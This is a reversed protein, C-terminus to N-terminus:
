CMSENPDNFVSKTHKQLSRNLHNMERRKKKKAKLKRQKKLKKPNSQSFWNDHFIFSDFRFCLVFYESFQIRILHIWFQFTWVFINSQILIWVHHMLENAAEFPLHLTSGWPKVRTDELNIPGNSVCGLMRRLRATNTSSRPHIQLGIPIRPKWWCVSGIGWLLRTRPTPGSIVPVRRPMQSHQWAAFPVQNQSLVITTAQLTIAFTVSKHALGKKARAKIRRDAM